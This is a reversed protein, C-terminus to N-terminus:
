CVALITGAKNKYFGAPYIAKEIAEPSLTLMEGLTAALRFLRKTAESTVEDKTRLSILTSILIVFPDRQRKALHTVIPLEWKKIEEGLVTIVDEIHSDNM